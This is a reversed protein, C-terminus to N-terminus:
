ARAWTWRWTMVLQHTTPKVLAPNIMAQYTNYLNSDNHSKFGFQGITQVSGITLTITGDRQHSDAVYAALTFSWSNAVNNNESDRASIAPTNSQVYAWWEASNIPHASLRAAQTWGRQNSTAQRSVNRARVTIDYPSGGISVDDHFVDDVPPYIRFLYFVDLVMQDTKVLDTPNGAGDTTLARCFMTGASVANFMGIERITGNGQATSLRHSMAFQHYDPPGANYLYLSAASAAGGSVRAGIPAVLATQTNAPPTADSGVQMWSTVNQIYGTGMYNMGANTILNKFRLERIVKETKADRLVLHFFGAVRVTPSRLGIERTRNIILNSADGPVLLGSALRRMHRLPNM